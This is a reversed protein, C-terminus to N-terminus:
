WAPAAGRLLDRRADGVHRAAGVHLDDADDLVHALEDSGVARAVRHEALPPPSASAASIPAGSTARMGISGATDARRRCRRGTTSSAGSLGAPWANGLERRADDVVQQRGISIAPQM